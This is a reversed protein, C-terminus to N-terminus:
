VKNSRGRAIIKGAGAIDGFTTGACGSLLVIGLWLISLSRMLHGESSTGFRSPLHRREYAQLNCYATRLCRTTHFFGTARRNMDAIANSEIHGFGRATTADDIGGM